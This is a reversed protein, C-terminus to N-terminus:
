VKRLQAAAQSLRQQAAAMKGGQAMQAPASAEPATQGMSPPAQPDTPIQAAQGPAQTNAGSPDLKALGNHELLKMLIAEIQTMREDPSLKKPKQQGAQVEERVVSRLAEPDMAPAPAPQQPQQAQQAQAQQQQQAQLTQPDMAVFAEKTSLGTAEFAMRAIEPNFRSM